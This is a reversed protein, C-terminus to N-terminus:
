PSGKMCKPANFGRGVSIAENTASTWRSREMSLFIGLVDKAFPSRRVSAEM